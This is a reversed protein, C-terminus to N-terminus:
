SCKKVFVDILTSKQTMRRTGDANALSLPVSTLPYELAKEFDITREHKTSTALLKGLVDRNAEVVKSIGNAKIEIKKGGNSFLFLKQRKIPDHFKLNTSELRHDVFRQHAAKGNPLVDQPNSPM